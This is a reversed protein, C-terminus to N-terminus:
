ASFIRQVKNQSCPMVMNQISVARKIVIEVIKRAMASTKPPTPRPETQEGFSSPHNHLSASASLLNSPFTTSFNDLM